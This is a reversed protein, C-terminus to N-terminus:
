SFPLQDVVALMKSESHANEIHTKIDSMSAGHVGARRGANMQDYDEFYIAQNVHFSPCLAACLLRVCHRMWHMYNASVRTTCWHRM